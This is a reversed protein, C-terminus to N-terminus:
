REKAPTPIVFRAGYLGARTQQYSKLQPLRGFQQSTGHTTAAPSLKALTTTIGYWKDSFLPKEAEATCISSPITSMSTSSPNPSSSTTAPEVEAGPKPPEDNLANERNRNNNNIIEGVVGGAIPGGLFLTMPILFVFM